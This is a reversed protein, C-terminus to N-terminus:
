MSRHFDPLDLVRGWIAMALIAVIFILLLFAISAALSLNSVSNVIRVGLAKLAPLIAYQTM